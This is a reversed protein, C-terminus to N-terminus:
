NKNSFFNETYQMQTNEYEYHLQGELSAVFSKTGPLIQIIVDPLMENTVDNEDPLVLDYLKVPLLDASCQVQSLRYM